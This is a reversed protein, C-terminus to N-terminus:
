IALPHYSVIIGQMKIQKTVKSSLETAAARKFAPGVYVHYRESDGKKVTQVFAKFGAARLKDTLHRANDKNKFSGMQVVWATQFLQKHVQKPPETMLDLSKVLTKKDTIPTINTTAATSTSSQQTPNPEKVLAPSQSNTADPNKQVFSPHEPQPSTSQKSQIDIPPQPTAASLENPENKNFFFPLIIIVLAALVFAAVIRQTIKKDM